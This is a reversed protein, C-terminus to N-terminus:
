SDGGQTIALCANEFVYRSVESPGHVSKSQVASIIFHARVLWESRRGRLDPRPRPQTSVCKIAPKTDTSKRRQCKEIGLVGNTGM